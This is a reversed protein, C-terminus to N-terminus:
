TSATCFDLPAQEGDWDIRFDLAAEIDDRYDAAQAETITGAEVLGDVAPAFHEILAEDLGDRGVGVEEAVAALNMDQEEMYVHMQDHSIGLIDELTAEVPRHGRHLDLGGDGCVTEGGIMEVLGAETSIATVDVDGSGAEPLDDADDSDGCGALVVVLALAGGLTTPFSRRARTAPRIRM